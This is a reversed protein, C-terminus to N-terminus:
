RCTRQRYMAYGLLVRRTFPSRRVRGRKLPFTDGTSRACRPSKANERRNTEGERESAGERKASVRGKARSLRGGLDGILIDNTSELLRHVNNDPLQRVCVRRRRGFSTFAGLVESRLSCCWWCATVPNVSERRRTLSGDRVAAM